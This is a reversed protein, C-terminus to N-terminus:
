EITDFYDKYLHPNALVNDIMQEKVSTFDNQELGQTVALARYLCNGDGRVDIM